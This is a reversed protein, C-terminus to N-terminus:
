QQQYPDFIEGTGFETEGHLPGSLNNMTRILLENKVLSGATDDKTTSALINTNIADTLNM